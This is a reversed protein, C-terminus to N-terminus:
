NKYTNLKHFRKFVKNIIQGEIELVLSERFLNLILCYIAYYVLASLFLTLFDSPLHLMRISVAATAPLILAGIIRSWHIEMIMSLIIDKLVMFQFIFVVTEATLTGIAAGIAAYRPILLLNVLIDAAAGAIESYLVYKEKGLPVLIQIGMINTMGIFFVTPMVIQMPLISPTYEAGSLFFIGEKAFLIFYVSISTALIVVFNMAKATIRRFDALLGHEIYYSSRPLLVTGLSTVFCVLIGKVKVAANYYGVEHNSKLFGLMVTDLHTYISTAISMAFFIGIAKFHQKFNYGGVPRLYIFKRINIFNFINSASASLISLCGYIIYDSESRILFFTAALAILKFAVSRITIYVYQELAKYLWEVGITNFIITLSIIIMLTKEERLRPVHFLIIFFCLYALLSMIFNIIMIEQVTRSLKVKDERVIACTRIGYTLVGLQAFINFYFIVSTAFSVKGVGAPGLIRSVYPFTILPFLIGSATLISNFIFNLKLSKQKKM